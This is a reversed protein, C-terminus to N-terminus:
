AFKPLYSSREKGIQLINTYSGKFFSRSNNSEVKLQIGINHVIIVFIFEVKISFFKALLEINSKTNSKLDLLEVEFWWNLNCPKRIRRLSLDWTPVGSQRYKINLFICIQNIRKNTWDSFLNWLILVIPINAKSINIRTIM